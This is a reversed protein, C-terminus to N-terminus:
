KIVLVLVLLIVSLVLVVGVTVASAIFVPTEYYPVEVPPPSVCSFDAEGATSTLCVQNSLRCGGKCPKSCLSDKCYTYLVLQDYASDLPDTYYVPVKVGSSWEREVKIILPFSERVKGVGYITRPLIYFETGIELYGDYRQIYFSVPVRKEVNMLYYPVGALFLSFNLVRETVPLLIAAKSEEKVPVLFNDENVGLFFTRGRATGIFIYGGPRPLASLNLIDESVGVSSLTYKFFIFDEKNLSETVSFYTKGGLRVEFFFEATIPGRLYYTGAM